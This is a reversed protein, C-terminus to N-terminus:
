DFQSYHTEKKFSCYSDYGRGGDPFAELIAEVNINHLTAGLVRFRFSALGIKEFGQIKNDYIQEPNLDDIRDLTRGGSHGFFFFKNKENELISGTFPEYWVTRFHEIGNGQAVGSLSLVYLDVLKTTKNVFDLGKIQSSPRRNKKENPKPQFNSVQTDLPQNELVQDDELPVFSQKTSLDEDLPITDYTVLRNQISKLTNMIDELTFNEPRSDSIEYVPMEKQVCLKGQTLTSPRVLYSGVPQNELVAVAQDLTLNNIQLHSVFTGWFCTTDFQIDYVIKPDLSKIKEKLENKKNTQTKNKEESSPPNEQSILVINERNESPTQSENTFFSLFKSWFCGM